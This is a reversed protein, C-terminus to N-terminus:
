SVDDVVISKKVIGLDLKTRHLFFFVVRYYFLRLQSLLIMSIKFLSMKRSSMFSSLHHLVVACCVYAIFIYRGLFDDKDPDKDYVEVELEQGPVEHVIVQHVLCM